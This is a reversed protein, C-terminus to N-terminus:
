TTREWLVPKLADGKNKIGMGGLINEVPVPPLVATNDSTLDLRWSLVIGHGADTADARRERRGTYRKVVDRTIRPCQFEWGFYDNPTLPQFHNGGVFSLFLHRANFVGRTMVDTVTEVEGVKAITYLVLFVGYLDTTIELMTAPVWANRVHLNQFPNLRVWSVGGPGAPVGSM